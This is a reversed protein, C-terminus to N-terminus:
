GCGATFADLFALVDLTDVTGDGNWDAGPDRDAWLGLFQLVDLIDVRGDANLDAACTVSVIAAGADYRVRCALERPLDPADIDMFPSTIAAAAVVEFEQGLEPLFGDVFEIELTGDLEAAGTVALRAHGDPGQGAVAIRLTGANGSFSRQAYEGLVDLTGLPSGPAVVGGNRVTAAIWGSGGLLGESDVVDATMGADPGVILRAAPGVAASRPGEVAAHAGDIRLEGKQVLLDGSWRGHGTLVFTSAGRKLVDLEPQFESVSGGLVVPVSGDGGLVFDHMFEVNCGLQFPLSDPGSAGAHIEPAVGALSAVFLLPNGTVSAPRGMDGAFRLTNLMFTQGTLRRMDNVCAFSTAAAPIELVANAYADAPRLTAVDGNDGNLWAGPDSWDGDGLPSRYVFRDFRNETQRGNIGWRPKDLQAEWLALETLLSDVLAPFAHSRDNQEGPDIALDHLRVNETWHGPRVLKWDGRQVAWGENFRWHLTEHPREQTQGTLHPMLDVGDSEEVVGGAAALLTPALDMTSVPYAYTGPALGPIRALFPVRIGGELMSGKEGRFIGNDRGHDGGNDNVFVVITEDEIAHAVLSDMVRGVARDLALTMAARIRRDTDPEHQFLALDQEKAEFPSHAATFPVYLFFPGADGHHREIFAAAEEGFADTTYRGNVPDYMSQDGEHIWLNEVNDDGRRMVGDFRDIPGWYTRCCGFLGFVEDFGSDLPRNVGDVSGLHWKGVLGTTYGLERLRDALTPLEGPLGSTPDNEYSLNNEHGFRQQHLGTLIGARSPSCVPASVYGASFRIGSSALADISPTIFLDSGTYGLEGYGLDDSVFLVINPPEAACACASLGVAAARVWHRGRHEHGHM